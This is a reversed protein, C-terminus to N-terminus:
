KFIDAINRTTEHRSSSQAKIAELAERLSIASPHPIFGRNAKTDTASRVPLINIQEKSRM